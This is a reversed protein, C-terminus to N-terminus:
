EHNCGWDERPTCKLKYLKGHSHSYKLMNLVEFAYDQKFLLKAIDPNFGRGIATVVDKLTYLNLSNDGFIEVEGEKSDVTIKTKSIDELEKKISGKTGILVPVREKPIKLQYSYEAM